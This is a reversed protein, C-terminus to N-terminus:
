KVRRTLKRYVYALFMSAPVAFFLIFWAKYKNWYYRFGKEAKYEVRLKKGVEYSSLFDETAIAVNGTLELFDLFGYKFLPQIGAPAKYYSFILAPVEGVPETLIVGFPAEPESNFILKKTLPNILVFDGRSLDVINEHTEKPNKFEIVFDYKSIDQPNLDVLKINKNYIGLYSLFRTAFPYFNQDKLVLAVNGHLIKLFDPITKPKNEMNNWYFYSSEFVTLVSHSIAGFCSESSTFNVLNVSLYNTGYALEETPIEIDFRKKGSGELPYAQIMTNNLYIRLEMKDKQHAPTHAIYLAFYLRDPMGGIKSLDLPITYSINGTGEVSVTRLGLEKLSIEQRIQTPRRTAEKIIEKKGVLLSPLVGEEFAVVAKYPVLLTDKVLELTDGQSLRVKKCVRETDSYFLNCPIPSQKCLHYVFPILEPESICYTNNYDRLFERINSYQRYKFEVESNKELVMYIKDSFVDECINNSIRLNGWLSIKVFDRNGKRYIPISLSAPMDKVKITSYPVDDVLLTVTSDDRLYPSTRLRLVIRGEELQPLTPVYFEYKPNIGRLLLDESLLNIDRFTFVKVESAFSISIFFLIVFMKLM